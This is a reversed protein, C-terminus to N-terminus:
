VSPIKIGFKLHTITCAIYVIYTYVTRLLKYQVSRCRFHVPGETNMQDTSSVLEEM